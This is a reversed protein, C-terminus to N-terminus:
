AARVLRKVLPVLSIVAWTGELAVLGAQRAQAAFYTLILSGALNMALYPVGDRALRGNLHAAYAFLIMAAGVLSIGQGIM